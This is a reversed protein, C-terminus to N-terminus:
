KINGDPSLTMDAMFHAGMLAPSDVLEIRGFHIGGETLKGRLNEQVVNSQMLGGTLVLVPDADHADQNCRQPRLLDVLSLGAPDVIKKAEESVVTADVVLKACSAIRRKTQSASQVDTSGGLLVSSLMDFSKEGADDPRFHKMILGPLPDPTKSAVSSHRLYDQEELSRLALRIAQRGIDFGSGDDGLLAGWGGSRGVKRFRNQKRQYRMAVSGTGAILVVVKKAASRHGAVTALLEIDNTVRMTM